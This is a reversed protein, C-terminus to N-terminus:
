WFHNVYLTELAADRVMYAGEPLVAREERPTPRVFAAHELARLMKEVRGSCLLELAPLAPLVCLDLIANPDQRPRTARGYKIAEVERLCATAHLHLGLLLCEKARAVVSLLERACTEVEGRPLPWHRLEV